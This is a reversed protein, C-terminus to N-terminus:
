PYFWSLTLVFGFCFWFWVLVSGFGFWSLTLVFDSCLLPLAPYLRSLAPVCVLCLWSLGSHAPASYGSLALGCVVSVSRPFLCHLALVSDFCFRSLLAFSPFLWFLTLVSDFGFWSQTLVFGSCDFCLWSLALVFSSCDFCLWSLTLVLGSYDFGFWSLTLVIGSCDFCLWFLTLVFGPCLRFLVLVSDFCDFCFRSLWFLALFTLVFGRCLWFGFWSPTSLSWLWSLLFFYFFYLFISSLRLVFGRCDTPENAIRERQASFCFALGM